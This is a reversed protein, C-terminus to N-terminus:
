RKKSSRNKEIACRNRLGIPPDSDSSYALVHEAVCLDSEHAAGGLGCRVRDTLGLTLKGKNPDAKEQFVSGGSRALGVLGGGRFCLQGM